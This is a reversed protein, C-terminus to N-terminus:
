PTLSLPNLRRSSEPLVPLAHSHLKEVTKNVLLINLDSDLVSIGHCIADFASCLLKGREHKM